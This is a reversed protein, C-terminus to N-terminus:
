VLYKISDVCYDSKSNKSYYKDILLDRTIIILGLNIEKISLHKRYFNNIMTDTSFVNMMGTIQM